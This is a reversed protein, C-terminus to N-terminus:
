GIKLTGRIKNVFGRVKMLAMALQIRM